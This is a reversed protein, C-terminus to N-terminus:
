VYMITHNTYYLRIIVDRISPPSVPVSVPKNPDFRAGQDFVGAATVQQPSIHDLALVSAHDILLLNENRFDLM